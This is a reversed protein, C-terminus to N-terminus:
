FKKMPRSILGCRIKRWCNSVKRTMGKLFPQAALNSIDPKIFHREYHPLHNNRSFFMDASARLREGEM